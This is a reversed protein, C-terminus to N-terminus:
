KGSRMAYNSIAQERTNGFAYCDSEEISIFDPGVICYQGGDQFILTGGPGNEAQMDPDNKLREFEETM